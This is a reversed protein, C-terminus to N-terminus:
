AQEPKALKRCIFAAGLAELFSMPVALPLISLPLVLLNGIVLWMLVFGAVWGLLTATWIGFRRTLVYMVAAFGFAWIAWVAGNVPASPFVQNMAQYHANWQRTLLVMNRVFEFLNVWIGSLVIALVVRGTGPKKNSM